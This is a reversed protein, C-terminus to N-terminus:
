GDEWWDSFSRGQLGYLFGIVGIVVSTKIAMLYENVLKLSLILGHNEFVDLPTLFLQEDFLFAMFVIHFFLYGLFFGISYGTIGKLIGNFVNNKKNSDKRFYTLFLSFLTLYLASIFFSDNLGEFLALENQDGLISLANKIKQVYYLGITHYIPFIAITFYFLSEPILKIYKILSGNSNPFSKRDCLELLELKGMKSTYDINEQDLWAKIQPITWEVTPLIPSSKNLSKPDKIDTIKNGSKDIECGCNKCTQGGRLAQRFSTPIRFRPYKEGCDPCRTESM